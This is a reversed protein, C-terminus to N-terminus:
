PGVAYCHTEKCGWGAQAAFRALGHPKAQVGAAAATTSSMHGGGSSGAAAPARPTHRLDSSDWAREAAKAGWKQVQESIKLLYSDM